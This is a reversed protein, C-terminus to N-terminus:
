HLLILRFLLLFFVSMQSVKMDLRVIAQRCETHTNVIDGDSEEKLSRIWPGPVVSDDWHHQQCENRGRVGIEARGEKVLFSMSFINEVTQTFSNPNFLFKVACIRDGLKEVRKRAATREEETTLEHGKAQLKVRTSEKEEKCRKYLLQGVQIMQKQTASLTNTDKNSGKTQKVEEATEEEAEDKVKPRRVIKKKEKPVFAAHIPGALFYVQPPVSNFCSGCEIGFNKWDFISSGSSGM